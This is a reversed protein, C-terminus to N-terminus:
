IPHVLDSSQVSAYYNCLINKRLYYFQHLYRFAGSKWCTFEEPGLRDGRESWSRKEASTCKARGRARASGWRRRRLRLRRPGLGRATDAGGRGVVVRALVSSISGKQAPSLEEMLPNGTSNTGDLCTAHAATSLQSAAPAPHNRQDWVLFGRGTRGNVSDHPTIRQGAPQGDQLNSGAAAGDPIIPHRLSPDLFWSETM